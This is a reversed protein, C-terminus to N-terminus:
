LRDMRGDTWQDMSGGGGWRFKSEAQDVIAEVGGGGRPSFGRLLM